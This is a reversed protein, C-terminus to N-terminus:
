CKLTASIVHSFETFILFHEEFISVYFFQIECREMYVLKGIVREVAIEKFNMKTLMQKEWSLWELRKDCNQMGIVYIGNPNQMTM